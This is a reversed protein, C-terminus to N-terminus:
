KMMRRISRRAKEAVDDLVSVVYRKYKLAEFLNELSVSKM